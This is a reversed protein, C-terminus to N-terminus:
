QLRRLVNNLHATYNESMVMRKSPEPEGLKLGNYIFTQTEVWRHEPDKLSWEFDFAVDNGEYDMREHWSALFLGDDVDRIHALWIEGTDGFPEKIYKLALEYSGVQFPIPEVNALIDAVRETAEQLKPPLLPEDYSEVLALSNM